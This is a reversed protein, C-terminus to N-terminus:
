QYSLLRLFLKLCRSRLKFYHVQPLCSFSPTLFHEKFHTARALAALEKQYRDGDLCWFAFCSLGIGDPGTSLTNWLLRLLPTKERWRSESSNCIRLLCLLTSSIHLSLQAFFGPCCRFDYLVAGHPIPPVYALSPPEDWFFFAIHQLGAKVMTWCSASAMDM